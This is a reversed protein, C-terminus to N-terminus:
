PHPTGGPTLANGPHRPLDMPGTAVQAQLVTIGGARGFVMTAALPARSDRKARIHKGDEIANCKIGYHSPQYGHMWCYKNAQSVTAMAMAVAQAVGQDFQEQSYSIPSAAAANAVATETKEPAADGTESYVFNALSTHLGIDKKTMAEKINPEQIKIYALADVLNQDAQIPTTKCYDVWCLMVAPCLKFCNRFAILRQADSLQQGYKTLLGHSIQEKLVWKSVDSDAVIVRYVEMWIYYTRSDPTGLHIKLRNFINRPTDTLQTMQDGSGLAINYHKGVLDPNLLTKKFKESVRIIEMRLEKARLMAKLEQDYRRDGAATGDTPQPVAPMPPIELQLRVNGNGDTVGPMLAWDAASVLLPIAGLPDENNLLPYACALLKREVRDWNHSGREEGDLFSALILDNADTSYIM